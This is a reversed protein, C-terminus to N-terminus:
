IIPVTLNNIERAGSLRMARDNTASLKMTYVAAM